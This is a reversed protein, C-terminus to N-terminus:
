TSLPSPSTALLEWFHSASGLIMMADPLIRVWMWVKMGELVERSRAAYYGFKHAVATQETGIVLTPIAYVLVGITLLWFGWKSLSENWELGKALSNAFLHTFFTLLFIFFIKM